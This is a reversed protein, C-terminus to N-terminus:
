ITLGIEKFQITWSSAAGALDDALGIRLFCSENSVMTESGGGVPM